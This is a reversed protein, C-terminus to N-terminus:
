VQGRPISFYFTAGQNLTSEAWVEGGHRQIIRKVIALGLGTGEFQDPNHLRQFVGFLKHAYEAEFGVGNDQISYVNMNAEVRCNIQIIREDKPLTYKIANSILNNWVQRLLVPDGYADALPSVTFTFKEKVEPSDVESYISNVMTTMDVRSLMLDSSTVRSLSLLDVILKAMKGANAHVISLLRKGEADLKEGYDELLILSFGDISRLPARLDHSVSYAFAELEQNSTELQNTREAVRQELEVNLQRIEGEVKKNEIAIALSNALAAINHEDEESFAYKEESFLAIVGLLRKEYDVPVFLASHINADLTIWRADQTTDAINIPHKSQAVLGVLGQEEGFNFVLKDKFISLTKDSFGVSDLLSLKNRSEDFNFYNAQQYGATEVIACLISRIMESSSKVAILNCSAQYLSTLRRNAQELQKMKDELKHILIQNYEKYYTEEEQVPQPSDVQKWSSYSQFVEQVAALFDDPAIPKILFRRAGLGLAFAEDKPDTYTATYFIFPISKLREDVMWKRCLSFGDMGPMLIDSIVMEPLSKNALELAEIGNSASEVEFGNTKLLIELMYLNQANDDVILIKNM